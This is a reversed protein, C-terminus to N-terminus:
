LMAKVEFACDRLRGVESLPTSLPAAESFLQARAMTSRADVSIASWYDRAFRLHRDSKVVFGAVFTMAHGLLAIESIIVAIAFMFRRFRRNTALATETVRFIRSSMETDLRSETL